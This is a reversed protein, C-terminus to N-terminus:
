NIDERTEFRYGVGPETIIHRPDSPNPEIKKRLQGIYVRLYQIDPTFDSGWVQTLLQKHTLVMGANVALYRLLEYETPTLRIEKGDMTTLRKSLDMRLAGAEIIPTSQGPVLSRLAVRIRAMLEGMNFPKTVYDNAGSDLAAIKQAEQERVSLIIIPVNSWERIAKVVELGDIDPLGMDLIILEPRQLAAKQVGERGAAAEIVDFGHPGLAVDLLKRIEQEDDIVLIKARSESGEKM